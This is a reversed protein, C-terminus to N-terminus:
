RSPRRSARRRPRPSAPSSSSAPPPRASTSGPSRARSPRRRRTPRPSRSAAPPRSRSRSHTRDTIPPRSPTTRRCAPRPMAAPSTSRASIAPTRRGAPQDPRHGHRQVLEGGDRRDARRPGPQRQAATSTGDLSGVVLNAMPSGLGTVYDYGPGASYHPSGTSTGSTIDHFDGPNKYLTTM